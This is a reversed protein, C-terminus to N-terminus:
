QFLLCYISASTATSKRIFSFHIRVYVACLASMVRVKKHRKMIVTDPITTHLLHKKILSSNNIQDM